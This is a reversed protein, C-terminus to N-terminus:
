PEANSREKDDPTIRCKTASEETDAHAPANAYRVQRVGVWVLTEFGLISVAFVLVMVVVVLEPEPVSPLKILWRHLVGSAQLVRLKGLVIAAPVWGVSAYCVVREAVRWPVRWGRRQSFFTVGLAEIYTLAIIGVTLAAAEVAGMFVHAVLLPPGTALVGELVLWGAGVGLATRTLFRRPPANPGDIRMHRFTRKPHLGVGLATGFWSGPSRRADFAPGDRWKPHSQEVRTGCEPCMGDPDIGVLPYGCTECLADRNPFTDNM